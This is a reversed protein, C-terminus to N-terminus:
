VLSPPASRHRFGMAGRKVAARGYVFAVRCPSQPAIASLGDGRKGRARQGFFARCNTPSTRTTEVLRSPSAELRVGLPNTTKSPTGTSTASMEVVKGLTRVLTTQASRSAAIWVPSTCPSSRFDRAISLFFRRPATKQGRFESPHPSRITRRIGISLGFHSPLLGLTRTRQRDRAYPPITFAVRPFQRRPRLRPSACKIHGIELAKTMAHCYDFFDIFSALRGAHDPESSRDLINQAFAQAPHGNSAAVRTLEQLNTEQQDKRRKNMNEHEDPTMITEGPRLYGKEYKDFRDWWPRKNAREIANRVQGDWKKDEGGLSDIRGNCLERFKPYRFQYKRRHVSWYIASIVAFAAEQAKSLESKTPLRDRETKAQEALTNLASIANTVIRLAPAAKSLADNVDEINARGSGRESPAFSISSANKILESLKDAITTADKEFESSRKNEAKIIAERVPEFKAFMAAM